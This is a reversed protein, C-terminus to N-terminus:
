CLAIKPSMFQRLLSSSRMAFLSSIPSSIQLSSSSSPWPISPCSSTSLSINNPMSSSSSPQTPSSPTDPLQYMPISPTNNIHPLHFLTTNPPSSPSVAPSARPFPMHVLGRLMKVEENVSVRYHLEIREKKLVHSKAMILKVFELELAHNHFNTIELEKLHDLNLGSYQQIDPLNDFAQQLCWRDHDWCIEVTIKEFNPSSSIVCLVFSIELFCVSLDLIRLHVLSISLKHPISGLYVVAHNGSGKYSPILQFLKKMLLLISRVLTFEEFLPCSTLLQQLMNATIIGDEFILSKLMSFGNFVSPVEIKCYKLSLHELGQLSFFSCLLKYYEDISSIEFTFKKINKSRSLHLIIQDIENVIEADTICICLESVPGKHLLLVHFIANILKYKEIEVEMNSLLKVLNDDFVLKPIGTWCYRWKKSLISTMPMLTLIKEITDQPLASIRDQSQIHAQM